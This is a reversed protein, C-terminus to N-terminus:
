GLPTDVKTPNLDKHPCGPSSTARERELSVSRGGPKGHIPRHSPMPTDPSEGCSKVNKARLELVRCARPAFAHPCLPAFCCLRRTAGASPVYFTSVFPLWLPQLHPHLLRTSDSSGSTSGGTAQTAASVGRHASPAKGSLENGASAWQWDRSDAVTLAWSVGRLADQLARSGDQCSKGRPRTQM